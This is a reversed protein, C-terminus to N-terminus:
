TAGGATRAVARVTFVSRSSRTIFGQQIGARALAAEYAAADQAERAALIDEVTAAHEPLLAQLVAPPAAEPDVGASGNHTTLAPAVSAFLAPTMGLVLRLEDVDEFRKDKAGYPLGAAGYADDEAGNLRHLNDPDKWDAIKDTLAKAADEELGAARFLATLLADSATNLDIKGDEDQVAVEVLGDATQWVPPLGDSGESLLAQQESLRGIAAYVGGDALAKAASDDILNRTLKTETRIEAVFAQAMIGLLVVAWLVIVLAIGRETAHSATPRAAAM